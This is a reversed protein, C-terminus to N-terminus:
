EIVTISGRKIIEDNESITYYVVPDLKSSKYSDNPWNNQYNRSRFIVKGNSNYIIVEVEEKNTYAEPVSWFDNRGDNNLTVVNPIVISNNEIKTVTIIKTVTCNGITAILTYIGEETITLNNGNNILQGNFYWQYSEGGGAYITRSSGEFLNIHEPESLTILSENFENITVSNSTYTCGDFDIEAYYQGPSSVTLQNQNGLVNNEGTKYWRLIYNSNSFGASLVAEDSSECIVESDTTITFDDAIGLHITVTNSIVINFEPIVIRLEYEGNEERSAVTHNASTSSQVLINNHYWQYTYGYNNNLVSVEGIQTQAVFSVINLGTSQSYCDQYNNEPAIMINFGTPYVLNVVIEQTANCGETQTVEVKYTGSQTATYNATNAGPIIINDRYWQFQPNDANTTVILEKSEGPIIVDVAPVNLSATITTEELNITNSVTTCSTYSISVYYNGNQSTNYTPQNNGPIVVGNRYWTYTFETNTVSSNLTVSGNACLTGQSTIVPTEIAVSITLNNSSITGFGPLTIELQYTGNQSAHNVTYTENQAGGINVGNKKWQLVYANNIEVNFTGQPTHATFSNIILNVSSSVCSQYGTATQITLTFSDPYALTVEDELIIECGITQTAVVKYVGAETATYSSATAGAITTNNRYWQYTPQNLSTSTTLVKQESPLIIDFDPNTIDLTGSPGEININNSTLTCSGFTIVLHYNGTQNTSYSSNNAGTVATNNRYWQYQYISDTLNSNFTITTSTNCYSGTQTIALPTTSGLTVNVTNSVVPNTIGPMTVTIHYNGNQTADYITQNAGSIPQNNRYWQYSYGYNNNLLSITNSGTIANFVTINLPAITSVCSQYDGTSGIVLNFSDPYIVNVSVEETLNCGQNETVVLTYNGAQNATYSDSTAGSINVNNRKWQYSPSTANTVSNITLTTGPILFETTNVDLDVQLDILELFFNNSEFTCGGVSIILKYTGELTANYTAQTAGSIPQNDRYWQYNYSSNQHSSVLTKPSGNCIFDTGDTTDITLDIGTIMEVTVVNSYSNMVCSGYDVIAYYNGAQTVPLSSGTAGPIEAFNRFWKYTLQPYYMPSAPTGNSDIQLSYNSGQCVIVSGVNNNISFPQNHVAYYAAFANSVPSTVAPATSRVRIRYNEGTTNEPLAFSANVPSSTSTSTGVTTPSDFNGSANSLEIIFQNGAQLNATPFFTFNVNYTNFGPSACAQSFGLTPTGIVITQAFTDCNNCLLWLLFFLLKKPTINMVMRMRM